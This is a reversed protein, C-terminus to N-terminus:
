DFEYKEMIEKNSEIINNVVQTRLKNGYQDISIVHEIISIFLSSLLLILILVKFIANGKDTGLILTQMTEKEERDAM